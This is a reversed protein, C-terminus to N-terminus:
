VEAPETVIESVHVLYGFAGIKGYLVEDDVPLGKLGSRMGYNMCAINGNSWMWSKGGINPDDWYGEVVYEHQGMDGLTPDNIGEVIVRQGRTFQQAHM